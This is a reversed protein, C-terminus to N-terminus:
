AVASVPISEVTAEGTWSVIEGGRRQPKAIMRGKLIRGDHTMFRCVEEFVREDKLCEAWHERVRQRDEPHIINIWGWDLLEEAPRGSLEVLRANAWIQRGDPASQWALVNARDILLNVRGANVIMARDMRVVRDFMSEGGNTTMQAIIVDMKSGLLDVKAEFKHWPALDAAVRM